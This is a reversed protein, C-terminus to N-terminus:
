QEPTLFAKDIIQTTQTVTQLTEPQHPNIDLIINMMLISQGLNEPDKDDPVSCFGNSM